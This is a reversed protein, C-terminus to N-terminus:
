RGPAPKDAVAEPTDAAAVPPATLSGPHRGPEEHPSPWEASAPVQHRAAIPLGSSQGPAAPQIVFSDRAIGNTDILQGLLQSDDARVSLYGYVLDRYASWSPPSGPFPRLSAGGSGVVVYVVGRTGAPAVVDGKMPLSREYNHDHGTLVLDVGYEEFLPGYDRRMELDSGHEGSSWPPHHFFVVKWPQATAAIDDEFWAMQRNPDCPGPYGIACSSDLSVFHVPGWDFSYYFETHEPNNATVYFNDLYPQAGSSEYEHNGPATFLPTQRLLAAMPTFMHSQFEADTGSSYANDGLTLMLEGHRTPRGLLALVRAQDSGGTGFDGMATFQVARGAREATRFQRVGTTSGCAEVIYSHTAGAKLGALTVAHYRDSRSAHAVRSTDKGEGYRVLPTCSASTRFAVVASSAGVSQLYPQRPLAPGSDSAPPQPAPACVKAETVSAWDNVNNGNVTLRLYRASRTSALSYTQMAANQASDGSFGQVFHEGDKSTSLEFHYQRADGQYWAISAASVKQLRGLDLQLWAGKGPGSWRTDLSGDQTREATNGSGDDGSAAVSTATYASCDPTAAHQLTPWVFFAVLLLRTAIGHNM